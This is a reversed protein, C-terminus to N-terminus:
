EEDGVPLSHMSGIPAAGEEVFSFDPNVPQRLDVHGKLTAVPAGEVFIQVQRLHPFNVTLTDTLGYVTLLESQTGGPHADILDRSFDVQVLSGAVTLQRLTTRPPLIPVMDASESPGAILARVTKSMCEEDLECDDILRPEALLNRGDASSFYLLVERSVGPPPAAVPALQEPAEGTRLTGVVLGVVFLIGTLILWPILKKWSLKQKEAQHNKQVM